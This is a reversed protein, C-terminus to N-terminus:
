TCLVSPILGFLSLVLFFAVSCLLEISQKLADVFLSNVLLFVLVLLLKTFSYSSDSAFNVNLIFTFKIPEIFKRNM